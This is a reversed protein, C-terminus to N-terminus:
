LLFEEGCIRCRRGVANPGFKDFKGEAECDHEVPAVQRKRWAVLAERLNAISVDRHLWGGDPFAYAEPEGYFWEADPEPLGYEDTQTVGQAWVSFRWGTGRARYYCFRGDLTGDGQVPCAGFFRLDLGDEHIEGATGELGGLVPAPRASGGDVVVLPSAYLSLNNVKEGLKFLAKHLPDRVHEDASEHQWGFLFDYGDCPPPDITVTWEIDDGYRRWLLTVKARKLIKPETM